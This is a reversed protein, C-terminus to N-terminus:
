ARVINLTTIDLPKPFSTNVLFYILQGKVNVNPELTVCFM